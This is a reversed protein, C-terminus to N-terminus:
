NKPPTQNTGLVATGLRRRHLHDLAVRAPPRGGSPGKSGCEAMASQCLSFFFVSPTVEIYKLSLDNITFSVNALIRTFLAQIWSEDADESELGDVKAARKLEESLLDVCQDPHIYELPM